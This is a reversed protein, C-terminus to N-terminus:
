SGGAGLRNHAADAGPWGLECGRWGRLTEWTLLPLRLQPTHATTLPHPGRAARAPPRSFGRCPLLGVLVSPGGGAARARCPTGLTSLPSLVPPQQLFGPMTEQVGVAQGGRRTM